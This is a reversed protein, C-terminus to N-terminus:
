GKVSGAVMSEMIQEQLVVYILITPAICIVLAAFMPTFNFAFMSTFYRMTLPLTRNVERATLLMAYLLENWSAIFTLIASSALAPKSVPMIVRWFVALFGAGEIAAAEDLEKPVSLFYSRMLFLCMAMAFGTYVLILAMRTDYLGLMKITSYIPQIMSNAPVLLSCILLAFIANRFRFEFRALVYAAMSYIVVAAVTASTAVFMSTMFRMPINATEFAIRYGILSPTQPWTFASSLIENNTKFSSMFVWILPGISIIVIIVMIIYGIISYIVLSKDTPLSLGKTKAKKQAFAQADM